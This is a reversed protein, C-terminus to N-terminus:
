LQACSRVPARVADPRCSAVAAGAALTGALLLLLALTGMGLAEGMLCSAIFLVDFIKAAVLLLSLFDNLTRRSAPTPSWHVTYSWWNTAAMRLAIVNHRTADGYSDGM